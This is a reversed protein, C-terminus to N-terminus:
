VKSQTNIAKGIIERLQNDTLAAVKRELINGSEFLIFVPLGKINYQLATKPNQDVNLKGIKIKGDYEREIRDILPDMAKCPLCWSAWFEVLVPTDGELVESGFNADTLKM